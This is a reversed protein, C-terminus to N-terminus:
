HVLRPIPVHRYLNDISPESVFRAVLEQERQLYSELQDVFEDDVGTPVPLPARDHLEAFFRPSEILRRVAERGDERAKGERSRRERSRPSSMILMLVIGNVMLALFLGLIMSEM